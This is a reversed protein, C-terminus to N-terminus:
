RSFDGRVDRIDGSYLLVTEGRTTTAGVTVRV